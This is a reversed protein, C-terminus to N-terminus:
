RVHVSAEANSPLTALTRVRPDSILGLDKILVSSQSHRIESYGLRHHDGPTSSLDARNMRNVALAYRHDPWHLLISCVLVSRKQKKLM